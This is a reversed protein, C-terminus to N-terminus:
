AIWFTRGCSLESSYTCTNKSRTYCGGGRRNIRVVRQIPFNVTLGSYM